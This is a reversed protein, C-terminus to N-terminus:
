GPRERPAAAMAFRPARGTQDASVGPHPPILQGPRKKGASKIQEKPLTFFLFLSISMNFISLLFDIFFTFFSPTIVKIM